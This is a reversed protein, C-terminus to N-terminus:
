PKTQFRKKSFEYAADLIILFLAFTVLDWSKDSLGKHEIFVRTKIHFVVLLIFIWFLPKHEKSKFLREFSFPWKEGKSYPVLCPVM